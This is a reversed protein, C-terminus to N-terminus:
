TEMSDLAGSGERTKESARERHIIRHEFGHCKTCLWIVDLPKSYDPHHGQPKCIKGCKSCCEPRVLHGYEIALEVYLHARKKYPYKYKYNKVPENEKSKRYKISSAKYPEPNAEYRKRRYEAVHDKNKEYWRDHKATMKETNAREYERDKIRKCAKCQERKGWKGKKYNGFEEFPKEIKCETCVRSTIM